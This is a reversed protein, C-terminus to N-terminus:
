IDASFESFQSAIGQTFVINGPTVLATATPTTSSLKIINGGSDTTFVSGNYYEIDTDIFPYPNGLASLNTAALTTVAGGPDVRHLNSAGSAGMYFIQRTNRDMTMATIIFDVPLGSAYTSISYGGVLLNAAHTPTATLLLALGAALSFALANKQSSNM